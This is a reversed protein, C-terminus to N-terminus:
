LSRGYCNQVLASFLLRNIDANVIVFHVFVIDTLEFRATSLTEVNTGLSWKHDSKM